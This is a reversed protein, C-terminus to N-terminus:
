LIFTTMDIARTAAKLARLAAPESPHSDHVDHASDNSTTRLLYPHRLINDVTIRDRSDVALMAELVAMCQTDFLDNMGWSQILARVGNMELFQFRPDARSAVEVLPTGTLLVFLLIGLSWVDAAALDCVDGAVVEPAMYFPKGVKPKKAHALPAALGFDCVVCSDNAMVHVVDRFYRQATASNVRHNPLTETVQFLEGHVCYDFVFHQMGGEVFSHRMALVNPHGDGDGLLATNVHEEFVIDEAVHRPTPEGVVLQAMAADMNMRKIAVMAGTATDRCLVVDGFLAKSLTREITYRQMTCDVPTCSSSHVNALSSPLSFAGVQVDVRSRRSRDRNCVAM